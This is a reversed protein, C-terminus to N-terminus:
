KGKRRADIRAIEPAAKMRLLERDPHPHRSRYTPKTGAKYTGTVAMVAWVKAIGTRTPRTDGRMWREVTTNCLGGIHAIDSMTFGRRQLTRIAELATDVEARYLRRRRTAADRQVERYRKRGM